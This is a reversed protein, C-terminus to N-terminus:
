FSSFNTGTMFSGLGLFLIPVADHHWDHFHIRPSAGARSSRITVDFISIGLKRYETSSLRGRLRDRPAGSVYELLLNIM